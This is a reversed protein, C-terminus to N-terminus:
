HFIHPWGNAVKWINSKGLLHVSKRGLRTHPLFFADTWEPLVSSDIMCFLFTLKIKKSRTGLEESVIPEHRNQTHYTGKLNTPVRPCIIPLKARRKTTEENEKLLGRSNANVNLPPPRVCALPWARQKDLFCLNRGCLHKYLRAWISRANFIM